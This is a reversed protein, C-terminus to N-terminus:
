DTACKLLRGPGNILPELGVKNRMHWALAANSSIVPKGIAAEAADLIAFTRLNTCSAFVAEVDPFSGIEVIAEYVSAPTIRAVTPDSSQNFSAFAAIEFGNTELLSRMAVAVQATYPTLMAIRHVRMQRCAAMVATIPDTTAAHPHIAQIMAVVKAQGIVTSASTCAFAVVDLPRTTPLLALARPLKHAMAQLTDSTIEDDSPIRTHYLAVGDDTLVSRIEPELTEDKQLVVLGLAARSAIGNDLAFHLSL